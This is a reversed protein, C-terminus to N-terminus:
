PHQHQANAHSGSPWLAIMPCKGPRWRWWKKTAEMAWVPGFMGRCAQVPARRAARARRGANRVPSAVNRLYSHGFGAPCTPTQGSQVAGTFMQISYKIAPSTPPHISITLSPPPPIPQHSKATASSSM